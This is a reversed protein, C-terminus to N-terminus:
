QWRKTVLFDFVVGAASAQFAIRSGPVLVLEDVAQSTGNTLDSFGAVTWVGAGSRVWKQVTVAAGLTSCLLRGDAWSGGIPYGDTALTPAATPMAGAQVITQVIPRIPGPSANLDHRTEAVCVTWDEDSDFPTPSPVVPTDFRLLKAATPVWGSDTVLQKRGDV